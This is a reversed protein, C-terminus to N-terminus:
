KQRTEGNQSMEQQSSLGLHRLRCALFEQPCHLLMHVRMQEKIIDLNQFSLILFSLFSWNKNSGMTREHVAAPIQFCMVILVVFCLTVTGIARPVSTTDCVNEVADFWDLFSCRSILLAARLSLPCIYVIWLTLLYAKGLFSNRIRGFPWRSIEKLSFAAFEKL